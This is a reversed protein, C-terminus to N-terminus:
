SRDAAIRLLFNTSDKMGNINDKLGSGDAGFKTADFNKGYIEFHDYFFKYWDGCIDGAPPPPTPTPSPTASTTSPVASSSSSPSPTPSPTTSSSTDNGFSDLNALFLSTTDVSDPDTVNTLDVWLSVPFGDDWDDDSDPSDDSTSPNNKGPVGPFFGTTDWGKTLSLPLTLVQSLRPYITVKPSVGPLMRLCLMATLM